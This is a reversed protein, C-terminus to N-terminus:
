FLVDYPKEGCQFFFFFPSLTFRDVHSNVQSHSDNGLTYM